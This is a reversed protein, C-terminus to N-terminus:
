EAARLKGSTGREADRQRSKEWRTNAASRAQMSRIATAESGEQYEGYSHVEYGNPVTIWLGAAILDSAIKRTGHIFPLASVPIFGDSAQAGSYAISSVYCAIAQWKRETALLLVKPNTPFSTDLRVWQLGAM